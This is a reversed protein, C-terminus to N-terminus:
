AAIELATKASKLFSKLIEFPEVPLADFFAQPDKRNEQFLSFLESGTIDSFRVKISDQNFDPYLYCAYALIEDHNLLGVHHIYDTRGPRLLAPDIESLEKNTSMLIIVGHPTIVGDIANLIGSLTLLGSDLTITTSAPADSREEGVREVSKSNKVEEINKRRMVAPTSDFDEILCINWKPISTLASRFEADTCSSIDVTYIDMKFFSALAKALSTKGTGTPGQLIHCQKYNVGDKIYDKEEQKFKEIEAILKEKVGSPSAVSELPRHILKGITQWETRRWEHVNQSTNHVVPVLKILFNTIVSHDRTFTAVTINEKELQTGTSPLQSRVMWYLRWGDFFFHIGYGKQIDTRIDEVDRSRRYSLTALMLRRSIKLKTKNEIANLITNFRYQNEWNEGTNNFSFSTTSQEFIFKFLKTPVDKLLFTVVALGYLSLGAAFIANERSLALIADYLNTIQDLM